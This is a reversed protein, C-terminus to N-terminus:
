RILTGCQQIRDGSLVYHRSIEAVNQAYLCQKTASWNHNMVRMRLSSRILHVSYELTLPGGIFTCLTYTTSYLQRVPAIVFCTNSM